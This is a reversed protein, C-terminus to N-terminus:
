QESCTGAGTDIWDLEAFPRETKAFEYKAARVIHRPQVSKREDAAMFASLLAINAIQGGTVNLKALRDVSLGDTPTGLPFARRWIAARQTADPFPFDIIFRIRRTFATDLASKRNTTLIALGRYAEMRQLLFSVEINAYRDHSDKVESRRGFLADAEDFLLVAGCEDAADFVRNLNKESEGIYKSIVQSLDIRYLDLGLQNAIVEAALTKGTGSEGSFLATIGLGRSCKAAFGWDGYVRPRHAVHAVMDRLVALKADPLVLDDWIAQSSVRHALGDLSRRAQRRSANWLLSELEKPNAKETRNTLSQRVSEIDEADLSFQTAVRDISEAVEPSADGFATRWRIRLDPLEDRELEFRIWSRNVNPLARRSSIVVDCGLQTAIAKGEDWAQENGETEFYLISGTLIAERELLMGLSDRLAHKALTEPRVARLPRGAKDAAAIIVDRRENRRSGFMQILRPQGPVRWLAAVDAALQTQGQSLNGAAHLKEFAEALRGDDAPVGLLYFLVREDLALPTRLLSDSNGLAVLTWRRLPANPALAEWCPQGWTSFAMTFTPATASPHGNLEAFFPPFRPDLEAAACLLLVHREFGSLGMRACLPGVGEAEESLEASSRRRARQETAALAPTEQARSPHRAQLERWLEDLDTQLRAAPNERTRKHAPKSM